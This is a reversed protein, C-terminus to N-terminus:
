FILSINTLFYHIHMLSAYLYINTLILNTKILSKSLNLTYTKFKFFKLYGEKPIVKTRIATGVRVAAQYLRHGRGM